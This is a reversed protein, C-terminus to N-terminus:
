YQVSLSQNRAVLSVGIWSCRVGPVVLSEVKERRVRVEIWGIRNKPLLTCLDLSDSKEPWVDAMM